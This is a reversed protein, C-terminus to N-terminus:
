NTAVLYSSILLRGIIHRVPVVRLWQRPSPDYYMESGALQKLSGSADFLYLFSVLALECPVDQGQCRFKCTFFLEVRGVWLRRVHDLGNFEFSHYSKGSFRKPPIVFVSPRCNRGHFRDSLGFPYSRIRQVGQCGPLKLSLCGFTRLEPEIMCETLVHNAEDVTPESKQRIGLHKQLFDYAFVGLATPLKTLVPHEKVLDLQPVRNAPLSWVDLKYRGEHHSGDSGITYILKKFQIAAHLLPYKVALECPPNESKKRKSIPGASSVGDFGDDSGVADVQLERQLMGSREHWRAFQLFIDKNNILGALSNILEIHSHEGWEGSTNQTWGFLAITQAVHLIDHCKGIKWGSEKGDRDPFVRKLSELLESALSDSELLAAIKIEPMRITIYWDMFTDLVELIQDTPDEPPDIDWNEIGDLEIKSRIDDICPTILGRLVFPLALMLLHM